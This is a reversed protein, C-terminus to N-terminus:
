TFLQTHVHKKPKGKCVSFNVEPEQQISHFRITNITQRNIQFWVPIQKLALDTPPIHSCDQNSKIWGSVSNLKVIHAPDNNHHNSKEKSILSILIDKSSVPSFDNIKGNWRKALFSSKLNQHDILIKIFSVCVKRYSYGNLQVNRFLNTNISYTGFLYTRTSFLVWKM